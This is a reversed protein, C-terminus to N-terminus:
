LSTRLRPVPASRATTCDPGYTLLSGTQAAGTGARDLLATLASSGSEALRRTAALADAVEEALATLTARHERLVAATQPTADAALRDLTSAEDSGAAPSDALGQLHIARELESLRVAEVAREVEEAAWALFRAEGATLLHRLETLKFVLLELLLRERALLGALEDLPDM